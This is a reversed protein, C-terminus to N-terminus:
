QRENSHGVLRKKSMGIYPKIYAKFDPVEEILHPIVPDKEMEMYLQILLPLTPHDEERLQMNWRGFSADIDNHTHGVMM